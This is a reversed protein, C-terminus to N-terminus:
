EGKKMRKGEGNGWDLVTMREIQIAIKRNKDDFHSNQHQSAKHVSM